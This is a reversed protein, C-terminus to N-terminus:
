KLCSAHALIRRQVIEMKRANSEDRDDFGHL